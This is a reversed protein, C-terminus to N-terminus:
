VRYNFNIKKLHYQCHGCAINPNEKKRTIDDNESNFLFYLLANFCTLAANKKRASSSSSYTTNWGMSHASLPQVQKRKMKILAKRRNNKINYKLFSFNVKPTLFISRKQAQITAVKADAPM